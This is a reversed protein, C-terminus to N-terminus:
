STCKSSVCVGNFQCMQYSFPDDTKLTKLVFSYRGSGHRVETVRRTTPDVVVRVDVVGATAITLPTLHAGEHVAFATGTYLRTLATVGPPISVNLMYGGDQTMKHWSVSVVGREFQQSAECDTLATLLHPQPTIVVDNSGGLQM